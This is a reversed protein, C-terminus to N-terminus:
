RLILQWLRLWKKDLKCVIAMGMVIGAHLAAAKVPDAKPQGPEKILQPHTRDRDGGLIPVALLFAAIPLLMNIRRM